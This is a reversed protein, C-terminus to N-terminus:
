GLCEPSFRVGASRVDAIPRKYAGVGYYHALEEGVHFPLAGGTPTSPWYPAGNGFDAVIDRLSEEFLPSLWSSAEAGFMAAQQEVESGGCWVAVSPHRSLRNVQWRAEAEIAERFDEDDHPYDMNALMFDQWVMLGLEDCCEYFADTEYVM